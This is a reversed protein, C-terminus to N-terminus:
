LLARWSVCRSNENLRDKTFTSINWGRGREKTTKALDGVFIFKKQDEVFYL